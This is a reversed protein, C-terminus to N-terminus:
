KIKNTRMVVTTEKPSVATTLLTVPKKDQRKVASVVGSAKRMFEDRSLQDKAKM